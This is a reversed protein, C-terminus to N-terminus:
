VRVELQEYCCKSALIRTAFVFTYLCMLSPLALKLAHHEKCLNRIFNLLTAKHKKSTATTHSPVHASQSSRWQWVQYTCAKPGWPQQPRVEKKRVESAVQILKWRSDSDLTLDACCLRALLLVTCCDKCTGSHESWPTADTQLEPMVILLTYNTGYQQSKALVTQNMTNQRTSREKQAPFWRQPGLNWCERSLEM